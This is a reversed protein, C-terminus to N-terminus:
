PRFGKQLDAGIVRLQTIHPPGEWGRKTEVLIVAIRPEFPSQLVAGIQANMLGDSGTGNYVKQYVIKSGKQKSVLKIIVSGKSNYADETLEANSFFDIKISDAGTKIPLKLSRFNKGPQIGYEALKRAFLKQNKRWHTKLNESKTESGRYEKSWVIKDTRMDQIILDGFYCGCAEDAPETFYAFKGDKSWGVPYFEENLLGFRGSDQNTKEDNGKLKLVKPAAYTQGFAVTNLILCVAFTSVLSLILKKSLM